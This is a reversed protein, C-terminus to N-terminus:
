KQEQTIIELQYRDLEFKLKQVTAITEQYRDIEVQLEDPSLADWSTTSITFELKNFVNNRMNELHEDTMLNEIYITALESNDNHIQVTRYTFNNDAIELYVIAVGNVEIEKLKKVTTENNMIKM